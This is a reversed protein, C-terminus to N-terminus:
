AFRKDEMWEEIDGDSMCESESESQYDEEISSYDDDSLPDLLSKENWYPSKDELYENHFDRDNQWRNVLNALEKKQDNSLDFRPPAKPEEVIKSSKPNDPMHKTVLEALSKNENNTNGTTCSGNGGLSPFNDDTLLLSEEEATFRRAKGNSKNRRAPPVYKKMNSAM